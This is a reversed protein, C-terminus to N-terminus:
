PEIRKIGQIRDFHPDFSVIESLNLHRMLVTHYADAFPLNDDVYLDFIERFRRKGQLLIGPIELLPLVAKRIKEKPQHYHRQLTFVVEFIVTDATCVRVEGREIRELYATARPSQVPDDGLLHRMIINTDLFSLKM